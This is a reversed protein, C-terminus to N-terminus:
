QSGEADQEPQQTINEDTVGGITENPFYTNVFCVPQGNLAPVFIDFYINEMEDGNESLICAFPERLLEQTKFKSYAALTFEYRNISNDISNEVKNSYDSLINSWYRESLSKQLTMGLVFFLAIVLVSLIWFNRKEKPIKSSFGLNINEEM